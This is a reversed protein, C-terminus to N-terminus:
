VLLLSVLKKSQSSTVFQGTFCLTVSSCLSTLSVSFFSIFNCLCHYCFSFNGEFFVWSFHIFLFCSWQRVAYGMWLSLCYSPLKLEFKFQGSTRKEHLLYFRLACAKLFRGLYSRASPQYVTLSLAATSGRSWLKRETIQHPLFLWLVRIFLSVILCLFMCIFLMNGRETM